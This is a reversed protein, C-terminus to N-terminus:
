RKLEAQKSAKSMARLKKLENKSDNPFSIEDTILFIKNTKLVMAFWWDFEGDSRQYNLPLPPIPPPMEKDIISLQRQPTKLCSVSKSRESSYPPTAEKEKMECIHLLFIMQFKWIRENHTTFCSLVSYSSFCQIATSGGNFVM